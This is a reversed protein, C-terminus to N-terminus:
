APELESIYPMCLADALATSFTLFLESNSGCAAVSMNVFKQKRGECAGPAAEVFLTQPGSYNGDTPPFM